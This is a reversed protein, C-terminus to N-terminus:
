SKETENNLKSIKRTKKLNKQKEMSYFISNRQQGELPAALFPCRMKGQKKRKTNSIVLINERIKRLYTTFDTKEDGKKPFNINFIDM